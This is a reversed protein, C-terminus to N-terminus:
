GMQRDRKQCPCMRGGCAVWLRGAGQAGAGPPRSVPPRGPLPLGLPPARLRSTLMGLAGGHPARRGVGGVGVGM